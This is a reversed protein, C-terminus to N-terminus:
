LNSVEGQKSGFHAMKFSGSSLIFVKPQRDTLICIFSFNNVKLKNRSDM